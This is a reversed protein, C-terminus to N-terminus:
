QPGEVRISDRESLAPWGLLYTIRARRGYFRPDDARWTMPGAAEAMERLEPITYARLQSVIGDWLCTLPVLPVLYTWLLRTWTFPRVFPTLLLVFLPVLLVVVIMGASRRSMEFIAIPQGAAAADRLIAQADAPRFHHFGNFLTRLGRLEKPMARAEVPQAVFDIAGGSGAAVHELAPVNPYLDTLTATIEMGQERLDRLIAPIPGSGGSCLDVIHATRGARLAEEVFPVMSRHVDWANQMFHLYDTALDRITAPFWPQDELEFLHLRRM